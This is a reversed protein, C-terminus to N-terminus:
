RVPSLRGVQDDLPINDDELFSPFSSSLKEKSFEPLAHGMDVVLAWDM